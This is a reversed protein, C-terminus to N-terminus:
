CDSTINEDDAIVDAENSGFAHCDERFMNNVFTGTAMSLTGALMGRGGFAGLDGFAGLAERDMM